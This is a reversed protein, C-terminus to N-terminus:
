LLLIPSKPDLVHNPAHGLEKGGFTPPRIRLLAAQVKTPRKPLKKPFRLSHSMSIANITNALPHYFAVSYGTFIIVTFKSYM